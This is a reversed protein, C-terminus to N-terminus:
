VGFVQSEFINVIARSTDSADVGHGMYQGTTTVATTEDLTDEDTLDQTYGPLNSGTTSGIAASEEASYLSYKSIDCEAKVFGVTQNDSATLYTGVFSGFSAGAAGTSGVGVGKNSSISFVHGFVLAGATGLEAFGSVLKVSDLETVTISNKLTRRVLVPSGWPAFTGSSKFAM